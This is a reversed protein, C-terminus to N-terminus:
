HEQIMDREEKYFQYLSYILEDIEKQADKDGLLARDVLATLQEGQEPTIKPFPLAM